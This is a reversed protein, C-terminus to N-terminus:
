RLMRDYDDLNPKHGLVRQSTDRKLDTNWMNTGLAADGVKPKHKLIMHRRWEIKTTWPGDKCLRCKYRLIRPEVM